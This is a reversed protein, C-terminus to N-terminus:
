SDYGEKFQEDQIEKNDPFYGYLSYFYHEEELRKREKELKEVAEKNISYKIKMYIINSLICGILTFNRVPASHFHM